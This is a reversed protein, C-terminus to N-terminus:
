DSAQDMFKHREPPPHAEHFVALTELWAAIDPSVPNKGNAWRQVTSFAIDMARAFGRQSWNLEELCWRFRDSDMDM